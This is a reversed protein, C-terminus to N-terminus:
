PLRSLAGPDRAVAEMIPIAFALLGRAPLIYTAAGGVLGGPNETREIFADVIAAFFRHPWHDHAVNTDVEEMRRWVTGGPGETPVQYATIRRGPLDAVHEAYHLFTVADHDSGVLAIRGDLEAFRELLSGRGLAFDWPQPAVLHAARAGRVAFRAVHDNVVTGPWTRFFEALAGNDRAARATAPDFPALGSLIQREEDPSLTGRGVEDYYRPCSVYMVVTGTRGVADQVALHIQDPGGIVDGVARVSAHVMVVDGPRLGLRRFDEALTGRSHM